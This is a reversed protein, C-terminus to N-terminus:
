SPERHIAAYLSLYENWSPDFSLELEAELGPLHREALQKALQVAYVPDDVYFAASRTRMGEVRAFALIGRQQRGLETELGDQVDRVSDLQQQSSFPFRWLLFHSLDARTAVANASDNFSLIDPADNESADRSRVELSLWRSEQELPFRFSRGLVGRQFNDFVPAFAALQVPESMDDSPHDVFEVPGVRVSFDWEGLVHDLMIFAMHQAHETIDQPIAKGFSLELGIIGGADYCGVLVDTSSLEFDDMRMSFDGGLTRSRFAKVIYNEFHPAHRVLAQANEFQATMGHASIVLRSGAQKLKGELEMVLGPAHGQLLENSREVFDAAELMELASLQQSFDSWFAQIQPLGLPQAEDEQIDASM